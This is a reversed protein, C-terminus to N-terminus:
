ETLICHAGSRSTVCDISELRAPNFGLGHLKGILESANSTEGVSYSCTDESDCSVDYIRIITVDEFSRQEIGARQMSTMFRAAEGGWLHKPDSAQASIALSGIVMLLTALSFFRSM